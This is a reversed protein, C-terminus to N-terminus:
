CFSSVSKIIEKLVRTLENAAKSSFKYNELLYLNRNIELQVAHQNKCPNGYHETIFGGAYPTNMSYTFGFQNLVSVITNSFEKSASLGNLNGVVIDPLNPSSQPMSHIDLLVTKKFLKTSQNVAESILNHYSRHWNTIRKEISSATPAKKYLPHRKSSLRPIVGYGSNIYRQWRDKPIFEKGNYATPNLKPDIATEPRNVDIIARSCNAIIACQESNILPMVIVDSGVDELTRMEQLDANEIMEAPYFRGGHPVSLIIPSNLSEGGIRQPKLLLSEEVIFADLTPTLFRSNFLFNSNNLSM